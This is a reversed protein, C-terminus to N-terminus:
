AEVVIYSIAVSAVNAIARVVAGPELPVQMSEGPYLRGLPAIAGAVTPGVKVYNTDDLNEIQIARPTTVGALSVVTDSTPITQVKQVAGATTQDARFDNSLKANIPGNVVQLTANFRIEGAM